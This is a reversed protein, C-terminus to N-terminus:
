QLRMDDEDSNSPDLEPFRPLRGELMELTERYEQSPVAGPDVQLMNADIPIPHPIVGDINPNEVFYQGAKMANSNDMKQVGPDAFKDALIKRLVRELQEDTPGQCPQKQELVLVRRHMDRFAHETRRMFERYWNVLRGISTNLNEVVFSFSM